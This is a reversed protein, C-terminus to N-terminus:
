TFPKSFTVSILGCSVERPSFSFWFPLHSCPQFVLQMEWGGPAHIGCGRGSTEAESLFGEDQGLSAKWWDCGPLLEASGKLIQFCTNRREQPFRDLLKTCMGLAWFLAQCLLPVKCIHLPCPPSTGGSRHEGVAQDLNGMREGPPGRSVRWWGAQGIGGYCEGCFIVSIEKHAWVDETSRLSPCHCKVGFGSWVPNSFTYTGPCPHPHYKKNNCHSLTGSLCATPPFWPIEVDWCLLILGWVGGRQSVSHPCLKWSLPRHPLHPAAMRASQNM